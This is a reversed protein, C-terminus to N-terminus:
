DVGGGVTLLGNEGRSPPILAGLWGVSPPNRLPKSRLQSSERAAWWCVFRSFSPEPGALRGLGLPGPLPVKFTFASRLEQSGALVADRWPM